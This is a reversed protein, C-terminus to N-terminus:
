LLKMRWICKTTISGLSASESSFMYLIGLYKVRWIKLHYLLLSYHKPVVLAPLVWTASPASYIASGRVIFMNHTTLREATDRPLAAAGPISCWRLAVSHIWCHARACSPVLCLRVNLGGFLLAIVLLQISVFQYTHMCSFLPYFGTAQLPNIFLPAPALCPFLWMQIIAKQWAPGNKQRKWREATHARLGCPCFNSLIRLRCRERATQEQEIGSHRPNNQATHIQTSSCKGTGKSLAATLASLAEDAYKKEAEDQQSAQHLSPSAGTTCVTAPCGEGSWLLRDRQQIGHHLLAALSILM